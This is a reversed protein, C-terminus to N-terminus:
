DVYALTAVSIRVSDGFAERLANYCAALTSGTTFVDDVLLIEPLGPAFCGQNAGPFPSILSDPHLNGTIQVRSGKADAEFGAIVRRAARESVKFAGSVNGARETASLRTQTRTRRVRRLLTPEFAAGLASALERGIVEAQNYGRQWRRTWHLPVPVVTLSPSSEESASLIVSPASMASSPASPIASPASMASSPASLIASPISEESVSLIVPPASLIVPPAGPIVSAAVREGLLRGFWRGIGFNRRYKVEQTINQYGAQYYFLAFARVYEPAEVLANFKDAMPNHRVSEFGTFPMGAECELCLHRECALLPRGCVACVRPLLLDGLSRLLISFDLQLIRKDM